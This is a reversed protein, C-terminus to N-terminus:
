SPHPAEPNAHPPPSARAYVVTMEPLSLAPQCRLLTDAPQRRAPSEARRREAEGALNGRSGQLHWQQEEAQPDSCGVSATLLGAEQRPAPPSRPSRSSHTPSKGRWPGKGLGDAHIHCHPKRRGGSRAEHSWCFWSTPLSNLELLQALCQAPALASIHFLKNKKKGEELFCM